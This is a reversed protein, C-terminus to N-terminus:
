TFLRVDKRRMAESIHVVDSWHLKLTSKGSVSPYTGTKIIKM